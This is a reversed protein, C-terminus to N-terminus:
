LYVYLPLVGLQSVSWDTLTRYKYKYFSNSNHQKGGYKSKIKAGYENLATFFLIPNISIEGYLKQRYTAFSDVQMHTGVVPGQNFGAKRALGSNKVGFDCM